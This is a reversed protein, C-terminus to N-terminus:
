SYWQYGEQGKEILSYLNGRTYEYDKTIDDSNKKKEVPAPEVKEIATDVVDGTIDFADNLEDFKKSMTTM